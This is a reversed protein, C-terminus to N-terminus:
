GIKMSVPAGCRNFPKSITAMRAAAIDETLEASV